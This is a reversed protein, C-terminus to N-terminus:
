RGQRRIMGQKEFNSLLRTFTVRTLGLM